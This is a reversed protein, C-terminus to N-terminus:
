GKCKMEEEPSTQPKRRNEKRKETCFYSVFLLPITLDTHGRTSAAARGIHPKNTKENIHKEVHM